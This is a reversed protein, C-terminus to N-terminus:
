EVPRADLGIRGEPACEVQETVAADAEREGGAMREAVHAHHHPKAVAIEHDRAVRDVRDALELTAGALWSRRVRMKPAARKLLQAEEVALVGLGHDHRAVVRFLPRLEVLLVLLPWFFAGLAASVPYPARTLAIQM